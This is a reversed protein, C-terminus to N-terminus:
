AISGARGPRRAKARRYGHTPEKGGCGLRGLYDALAADDRLGYTVYLEGGPRIRPEVLIMQEFNRALIFVEGEMPVVRVPQSAIIRKINSLSVDEFISHIDPSLAV